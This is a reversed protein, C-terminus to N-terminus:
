RPLRNIVITSDSVCHMVPLSRASSGPRAIILTGEVDEFRSSQDSPKFEIRLIIKGDTRRALIAPTAKTRVFCGFQCRFGRRDLDSVRGNSQIRCGRLAIRLTSLRIMGISLALASTTFPLGQDFSRIGAARWAYAKNM